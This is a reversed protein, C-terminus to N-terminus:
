PSAEVQIQDRTLTLRETQTTYTCVDAACVTAPYQNIIAAKISDFEGPEFKIWFQDVSGTLFLSCGAQHACGHGPAHHIEVSGIMLAPKNKNLFTRHISFELIHDLFAKNRMGVHFGQIDIHDDALASGAFIMLLLAFVIKM